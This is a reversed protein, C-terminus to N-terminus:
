DPICSTFPRIDGNYIAEIGERYTPFHLVVGLEAKIKDNMVIKEAAVMPQHAASETGAAAPQGLLKRAFGEVERRSAPDDDVINYVSGPRPFNISSEIVSCIDLVHCRSVAQKLLRAKQNATESKKLVADLMSRGPGYIGGCRFVHVPYHYEIALKQWALDIQKRLNGQALLKSDETVFQGKHDGYVSTTGIYGIWKIQSPSILSSDFVYKLVPDVRSGKKDPPITSIIHTVTDWYEDVNEDSQGILDDWLEVHVLPMQHQLMMRKSEERCTGSVKWGKAAFYQAVGCGTYGLGACKTYQNGRADNLIDVV